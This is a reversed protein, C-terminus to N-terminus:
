VVVPVGSDRYMQGKSVKCHMEAVSLEGELNQEKVIVSESPM